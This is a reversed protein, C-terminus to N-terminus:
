LRWCRLPRPAGKVVAAQRHEWLAQEQTGGGWLCLILFLVLVRLGLLGWAWGRGVAVRLVLSGLVLTSASLPGEPLRRM